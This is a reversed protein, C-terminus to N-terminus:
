YDRESNEINEYPDYIIQEKDTSPNIYDMIEKETMGHTTKLVQMCTEIKPKLYDSDPKSSYETGIDYLLKLLKEKSLNEYKNELKSKIATEEKIIQFKFKYTGTKEGICLEYIKFDIPIQVSYKNKFYDVLKKNIGDLLKRQADYSSIKTKIGNVNKSAPGICYTHPADQLIGTLANWEKTTNDRFGLSQCTFCNAKRKPVQIKIKNDNEYSVRLNRIFDEPDEETTENQIDASPIDQEAIEKGYLVYRSGEVIYRDSPKDEPESEWPPLLVWDSHWDTKPNKYISPIERFPYNSDIWKREFRKYEEQFWARQEDNAFEEEKLEVYLIYRNDVGCFLSILEILPFKTAWRSALIKFEPLNLENFFHNSNTTNNM